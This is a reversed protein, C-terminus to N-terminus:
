FILGWLAGSRVTRRATEFFVVVGHLREARM